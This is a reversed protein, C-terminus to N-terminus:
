HGAVLFTNKVNRSNDLTIRVVFEALPINSNAKLEQKEASEAKADGTAM